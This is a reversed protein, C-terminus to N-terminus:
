RVAAAHAEEASRLTGALTRARLREEQARAEMEASSSRLQRLEAEQRRATCATGSGRRGLVRSVCSRRSVAAAAAAAREQAAAEVEGSTTRARQLEAQSSQLRGELARRAEAAAAEAAAEAEAAGRRVAEVTATHAAAAAAAASAASAAAAEEAEARERRAAVGLSTHVAEVEGEWHVDRAALQEAHERRVGEQAAAHGARAAALAVEHGDREGRVEGLERGAEALEAQLREIMEAAAEAAHHLDIAQQESKALARAQEAEEELLAGRASNIERRAEVQAAVVEGRMEELKSATSQEELERATSEAFAIAEHAAVEARLRQLEAGEVSTTSIELLEAEHLGRAMELERAHGAEAHEALARHQAAERAESAAREDAARTRQQLADLQAEYDDERQRGMEVAACLHLVEARLREIQRLHMPSAATSADDADSAERWDPPPSGRDDDFSLALSPSSAISADGAVPSITPGQATDPPGGTWM